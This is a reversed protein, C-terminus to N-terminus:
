AAVDRGECIFTRRAAGAEPFDSRFHAGRSEERALAASAILRAAILENAPGHQAALADITELASSLGAKDREVGVQAQMTARLRVRAEQPLSPPLAADGAGEAPGGTDRLREAIRDAFVVAELLSNSALRNAGHAGTSSCEGAVSLGELSTRGWLDSAAGGMHYHAAPAVPIPARRPDIGAAMCAAFVSPFRTPFAEGVADRADLFAGAGAERQRHIARAVVDRVALEPVFSRGQADVLKAGAGRLAETALPAPDRGVDIATPHFQV